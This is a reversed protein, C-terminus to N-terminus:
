IIPVYNIIMSEVPISSEHCLGWSMLASPCLMGSFGLSSPPLSVKLTGPLFPLDKEMTADGFGPRKPLFLADDSVLGRCARAENARAENPAAELVM